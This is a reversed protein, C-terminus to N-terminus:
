RLSAIAVAIIVIAAVVLAIRKGYDKITDEGFLSTAAARSGKRIQCPIDYFACEPEGGASNVYDQTEAPAHSLWDEGYTAVAKAVNGQGWNYAALAKSYDGDFMKLLDSMYAGWADFSAYPDFPDSLGYQQATDDIFQAIGKATGYRTKKGVARPNFNSEKQIQRYAKDRDIGYEDAVRYLYDVLKTQSTGVSRKLYDQYTTVTNRAAGLPTYTDLASVGGLMNVISPTWGYEKALNFNQYFEPQQLGVAEYNPEPM